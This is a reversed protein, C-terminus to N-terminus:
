NWDYSKIIKSFNYKDKIILLFESIKNSKEFKLNEGFNLNINVNRPLIFSIWKFM